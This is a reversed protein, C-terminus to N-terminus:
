RRSSSVTTTKPRRRWSRGTSRTHMAVRVSLARSIGPVQGTFPKAVERLFAIARLQMEALAERSYGLRAGWDPSARCDLGGMLAIFGHRAAIELYYEYMARLDAVAGPRDLLPFMAFEPLAHGHKYMVETEQGGETLYYTGTRKTPFSTM